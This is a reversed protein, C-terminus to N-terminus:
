KHLVVPKLIRLYYFQNILGAHHPGDPLHQDIVNVQSTIVNLM